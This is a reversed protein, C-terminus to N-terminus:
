SPHLNPSFPNPNTSPLCNTPDPFSKCITCVLWPLIGQELQSQPRVKCVCVSAHLDFIRIQPSVTSPVLCCPGVDQVLLLISLSPPSSSVPSSHSSRWDERQKARQAATCKLSSLACSCSYSPICFFSSEKLHRKAQRSCCRFFFSVLIDVGYMFM